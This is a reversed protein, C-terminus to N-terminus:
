MFQRDFDQKGLIQAIGFPLQTQIRAVTNALKQDDTLFHSVYAIAHVHQRDRFERETLARNLAVADMSLASEIATSPCDSVRFQRVFQRRIKRSLHIGELIRGPVLGQVIRQDVTRRIQRTLQRKRYAERLWQQAEFNSRLAQQIPTKGQLTRLHAVFQRSSPCKALEVTKGILTSVADARSGIPSPKCYPVGIYKALLDTIEAEQLQRRDHMWLPDLSDAYEALALARDEDRDEAM